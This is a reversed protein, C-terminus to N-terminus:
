AASSKAPVRVDVVTGGQALRRIEARGGLARARERISLLGLSRPAEVEAEAIGAGDDAITLVLRDDADRALRISAASAGAHRRINLLAEQVIRLLAIAHPDQLSELTPDLDLEVNIGARKAFDDAAWEIAAVPGLHDLIAPRLHACVEQIHDVGNRTSDILRDLTEGHEAGVRDRLIRLDLTLATLEQGLEEQLERAIRSREEERLSQLHASLQRLEDRSEELAREAELRPGIDRIAIQFRSNDFMLHANQETELPSGDQRRLTTEVRLVGMQEFAERATRDFRDFADRDPFLAALELGALDEAAYGLQSQATPSSWLVRGSAREVVLVGMDLGEFFGKVLSWMRDELTGPVPLRAPASESM